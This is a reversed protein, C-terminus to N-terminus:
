NCFLGVPACKLVQGTKRKSSDRLQVRVKVKMLSRKEALIRVKVQACVTFVNAVEAGTM